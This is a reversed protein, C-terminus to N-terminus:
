PLTTNPVSGRLPVFELYVALVHHVASHTSRNKDINLNSEPSFPISQTKICIQFCGFSIM